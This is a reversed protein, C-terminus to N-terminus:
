NIQISQQIYLCTWFLYRGVLGLYSGDPKPQVAIRTNSGQWSTWQKEKPNFRVLGGSTFWITSDPALDVDYTFGNLSQITQDM